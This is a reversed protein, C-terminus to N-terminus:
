AAPKRTRRNAVAFAWIFMAAAFAALVILSSGLPLATETGPLAAPAPSRQRLHASQLAHPHTAM